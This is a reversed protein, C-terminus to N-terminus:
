GEEGDDFFLKMQRTKDQNQSEWTTYIQSAITAANRVQLTTGHNIHWKLLRGLAPHPRFNDNNLTDMVNIGSQPFSAGILVMSQDYDTTLKRRHKGYWDKAIEEPSILDYVKQTEKCWGRAEYEAPDITTGRLLKQMQDRPQQTVGDFLRLFQRTMPEANVPPPETGGGSEEDLLQNIGILADRVTFEKDEDVFVKRYHRSFYELAKGRRIVKLDGLALGAKQHLEIVGSLQRVERLIERRLKAWSITTPEFTRKRCVHIADYEQEKSGFQGEGKTEDALVPYNAELYFGAEFLSELVSMWPGDDKHHFTFALIGGPKLVKNARAWAATLVKKYFGKPDEPHRAKNEVAELTKPSYEPEFQEKYTDKLSLRLWVHFFDALESYQILGEFPPDTIVCDISGDPWPLDTASACALDAGSLVPDHCMVKTNSEVGAVIEWPSRAWDITEILSDASSVWNGRGRYGFVNNEVFGAKPHFNANSLLPAMGDRSIDWFCFMNQNRLYQQFGGLVFDTVSQDYQQRLTISKLLLAHVLLQRPSFMKWWHSYGHQPLPQRQNTMHGFPIKSVPWYGALDGAKREHWDREAAVIPRVDLLPAFFRGNYPQGGVDCAPCYGQVAFAAVPATKGSAEVSDVIAQPNGEAGCVFKATDAIMEGTKKDLKQAYTGSGTPFTVGTLPCTVYVPLAGRVELLRLHSARQRYWRANADPDDTVSGGYAEGEPSLASEGKMWEPHVLLTLDVKKSKGKGEIKPYRHVHSCIPCTVSADSQVIAYRKETAAVILPVSPAMRPDSVEVDFVADCTECRFDEWARVTISKVAVVPSSMIPTRHGCGTVQCPGHKAWFVYTMEPGVYRYDNREEPTLGLPDFATGMVEGTSARTWKGHHGRPCDCAHFPMIQPKLEAEVESLLAQVEGPDITTVANRVILWAVPNLDCGYMQMGLRSGEVITTGGGMFIDAVKLHKLAGKKQHNAYYVDWVARAAQAPDDPAKMSAALLMSRFVSSRRRAWWKSMQYIPKGANGEIQSIQNIPIIPFDVELCTKPRNPDNFDVTEVAVPRGAGVAKAIEEALREKKTKGKSPKTVLM